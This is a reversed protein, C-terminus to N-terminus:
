SLVSSSSIMVLSAAIFASRMSLTPLPLVVDTLVETLRLGVILILTRMVENQLM